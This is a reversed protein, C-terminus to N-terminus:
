VVNEIHAVAARRVLLAGLDQINEEVADVIARKIEAEADAVEQPTSAPDDIVENEDEFFELKRVEHHFHNALRQLIEATTFGAGDFEDLM